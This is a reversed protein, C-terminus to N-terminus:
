CFIIEHNKRNGVLQRVRAYSLEFECALDDYIDTMFRNNNKLRKDFEIIIIANRMREMNILKKELLFALTEDHKRVQILLKITEQEINFIEM